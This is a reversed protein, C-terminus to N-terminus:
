NSFDLITQTWHLGSDVDFNTEIHFYERYVLGVGTSYREESFTKIVFNDTDNDQIVRLTSDFTFAGVSESQHVYAYEFTQKGDANFVNGDWSEEVKPPFKLIMQHRNDLTREARFRDLVISYSNIVEFYSSDPHKKSREIRFAQRGTADEFTEAITERLIFSYTTVSQDFDNYVISDVSYDIHSGVKLPLYSYSFDISEVPQPEKCSVM